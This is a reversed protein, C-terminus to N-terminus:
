DFDVSEDVDYRFDVPVERNAITVGDGLQDPLDIPLIGVLVADGAKQPGPRQPVLLGSSPTGTLKVLMLWTDM